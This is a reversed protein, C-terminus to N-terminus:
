RRRPTYMAKLNGVTQERTPVPGPAAPWFDVIGYPNADPDDVGDWIAEAIATSDTMGWWNGTLDLPLKPPITSHLSIM